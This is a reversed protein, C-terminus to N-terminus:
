TRKPADAPHQDPELNRTAIVTRTFVDTRFKFGEKELVGIMDYNGIQVQAWLRSIGCEIARALLLQLLRRAMGLRRMKEHVVFAAEAGHGDPDGM